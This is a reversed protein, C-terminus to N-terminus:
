SWWPLSRASDRRPQETRRRRVPYAAPIKTNRVKEGYKEIATQLAAHMSLTMTGRSIIKGDSIRAVVQGYIWAIMRNTMFSKSRAEFLQGAMVTANGGCVM